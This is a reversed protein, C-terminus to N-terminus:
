IINKMLIYLSGIILINLIIMILYKPIIIILKDSYKGINLLFGDFTMLEPIPYLDYSDKGIGKIQIIPYGLLIEPEEIYNSKIMSWILNEKIAKNTPQNISIKNENNNASFFM